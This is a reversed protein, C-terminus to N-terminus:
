YNQFKVLNKEEIKRILDELYINSIYDRMVREANNSYNLVEYQIAKIEVNKQVDNYSYSYKDGEKGSYLFEFLESETKEMTSMDERLLEQERREGNEEIVYSIKDISRYREKNEEFYKKADKNIEDTANLTIFEVMDLKFNSSIYNYYTILNFEAPGYFVEGKEKKIKRQSNENEMDRQFSEFSYPKCLGMEYGLMFEANIRNIKEKTRKEIEEESTDSESDRVVMMKYFDYEDNEIIRIYGEINKFKTLVDDKKDNEGKSDYFIFFIIGFVVAVFIIPIWIFNKNYKKLNNVQM